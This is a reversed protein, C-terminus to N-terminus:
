LEDSTAESDSEEPSGPKADDVDPSPTRTDIKM